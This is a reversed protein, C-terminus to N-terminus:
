MRTPYFCLLGCCMPNPELFVFPCMYEMLLWGKHFGDFSSRVLMQM